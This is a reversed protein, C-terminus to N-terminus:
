KSLRTFFDRFGRIGFLSYSAMIILFPEIPYRYRISGITVMHIFTLYIISIYIPFFKKFFQRWYRIIFVISLILIVGYSLISSIIIHTEQYEKAYPWIRWFRFFKKYALYLFNEKNEIIFNIAERKQVRNREIPNTYIDFQSENVDIGNIGGGSTNLPNNGAYLVVGDGLNLRVFEGYKEYQHIWWPSMVVAYIFFYVGIFKVSKKLGQNQVYFIFIFVIIPNILDFTPKILVGFVLFFIGLYNKEKYFFVFSLILSFTFFNETLGALSYFISHPYFAFISTAILSITSNKFLSESLNFILILTLLSILIDFLFLFQKGGFLYTIIPYIPMYIHNSVLNGSFIEQGINIYARADPFDQDPYVLFFLVRVLLALLLILKLQKNLLITRV